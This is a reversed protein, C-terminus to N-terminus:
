GEVRTTRPLCAVASGAVLVLDVGLPFRRRNAQLLEVVNAPLGDVHLCAQGDIGPGCLHLARGSGLRAVQVFLTTSRDPFDQTGACFRHLAPLAAGDTVVAFAADAPDEVWRAGTHFRLSARVAPREVDIWLSSEHDALGLLLAYTGAALPAPAAPLTGRLSVETGPRSMARLLGRFQRQADHVPDALGDALTM